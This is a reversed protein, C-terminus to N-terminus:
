FLGTINGNEDIDINEAAPIKPLGPMTLIEGALAVVFRAGAFVRVDRVPLEFGSPRGKWNPDTSFSYQTKAICVPYSGFGQSELDRFKQLIKKDAVAQKAGYIERCVTDVKEWLPLDDRYLFRFDPPENEMTQVVTEALKEAGAGGLAWHDARVAKVGVSECQRQLLQLEAETDTPFSNIAVVVPLGFKRINEVHKQLNALGLKLADLNETKLQVLEIGGHMKLARITAVLVVADPKLGSMRCKIDFFKEAGLDAGFGAETVTYQS